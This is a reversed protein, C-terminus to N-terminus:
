ANIHKGVPFRPIGDKSFEQFIVTIWKGIYDNAIPFIRRREELTLRPKVSFVKKEKTICEWIVAGRDIGEGEHFGVIEFEDDMFEKYKWLSSSRKNIEYKGDPPRIMIGEYGEQVFVDHKEKLEEKSHIRYTDVKHICSPIQLPFVEELYKLRNEFSSDPSTPCYIDYVYLHIKEYEAMETASSTTYLTRVLGSLREFSLEQTYLEGDLIIDPHNQFFPALSDKIQTFHKIETGCRSQFVVKGMELFSICRIGDYKRQVFTPFSIQKWMKASLTKALMPRFQNNAAVAPLPSTIDEMYGEKNKKENWKSQAELISQELVSRGAKGKTVITEHTQIKGGFEGFSVVIRGVNGEEYQIFINWKMMKRQNNTNSKGGSKFKYLPPFTPVSTTKMSTVDNYM